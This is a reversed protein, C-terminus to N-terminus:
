AVTVTAIVRTFGLTKGADRRLLEIEAEPARYGADRCTELWRLWLGHGDAIMDAREVTVRGTKAWHRRWWEPSHFSCFDWEWGEALDPTPGDPLEFTVGPVAIGISGAPRLFRALYGIYLDDTGFYHYADLSVIADFFGAAFPLDHAEVHVATVRGSLGAAAIRERNDEAPIWLDAAWVEVEFEQALFISSVARGCGLDLVKMGPRLEIAQTVAETLWLVNPGMLNEMVWRPDYRNSRPFAEVRLRARLEDDDM